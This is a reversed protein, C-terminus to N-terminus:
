GEPLAVSAGEVVEGWAAFGGDFARVEGRELRRVPADPVADGAVRVYGVLNRDWEALGGDDPPLCMGQTLGHARWAFSALRAPSRHLVDGHDPEIWGGATSAEFDRASTLRNDARMLDRYIVFQNLVCARDSELRTYYYLNEEAFKKLRRSYFGGDANADAERKILRLQRAAMGLAHEDGLRDAAYLLSPLLYEQCYAYRVRTDGGIRALRGDSFLFRRAVAWLGAQHGHLEAPATLGRLRLDFHLMAAQSICIIMYGVNTYGQHDLAFNPFFNAGVCRADTAVDDPVCVGNALFRIARERWDAAHPADPYM